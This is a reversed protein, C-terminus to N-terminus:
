MRCSLWQVPISPVRGERGATKRSGSKGVKRGDERGEQSGERSTLGNCVCTPARVNPLEAVTCTHIPSERSDQQREVGGREGEMGDWWGKMGGERGVRTAGEM